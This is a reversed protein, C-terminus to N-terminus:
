DKPEAPAIISKLLAQLVDIVKSKPKEYENCDKYSQFIENIVDIAIKKKEPNSDIDFIISCARNHLFLSMPSVELSAMKEATQFIKVIEKYDEDSSLDNKKQDIWHEIMLGFTVTKAFDSDLVSGVGFATVSLRSYKTPDDKRIKEFIKKIFYSARAIKVNRIGYTTVNNLSMKSELYGTDIEPLKMVGYMSPTQAKTADWNPDDKYPYLTSNLNEDGKIMFEDGSLYSNLISAPNLNIGTIIFFPCVFGVKKDPNNEVYRSDIIKNIEDIYAIDGLVGCYSNLDM